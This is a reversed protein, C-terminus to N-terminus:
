ESLTKLVFYQWFDDWPMFKRHVDSVERDRGEILEEGYQEVEIHIGEEVLDVGSIYEDESSHDNLFESIFWRADCLDIDASEVKEDAMQIDEDYRNIEGTLPHAALWKKREDDRRKILVDRQSCLVTRADEAEKKQRIASMIEAGNM